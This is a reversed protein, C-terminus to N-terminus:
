LRRENNLGEKLEKFATILNDIDAKKLDDYSNEGQLSLLVKEVLAKEVDESSKLDEALAEFGLVEKISTDLEPKLIRNYYEDSSEGHRGSFKHIIKYGTMGEDQTIILVEVFPFLKRLILKFQKGSFKGTGANSQEFLRNDILVINAERVNTNNLLNEYGKSYEFQVETYEKEIETSWPLSCYEDNMYKSIETDFHDDIYVIKMKRM